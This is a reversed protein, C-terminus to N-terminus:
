VAADQLGDREVFGQERREQVSLFFAQSDGDQCLSPTPLICRVRSHTHFVARSGRPRPCLECLLRWVSAIGCHELLRCALAKLM